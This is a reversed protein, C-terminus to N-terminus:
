PLSKGPVGAPDEAHETSGLDGDQHAKGDRGEVEIADAAEPRLLSLFFTLWASAGLATQAVHTSSMAFGLSVITL